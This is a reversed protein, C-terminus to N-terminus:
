PRARCALGSCARLHALREALSERIAAYAPDTHRSRLQYPDRALDYLEQEGNGYEAYFYNPARVATFTGVGPGREILLDRRLSVNPQAIVPLLSRGDMIRGPTAGAADVITPALDINAVRQHVRRGAPIGPGRMILPVRISPEYPLLKGTPVRHEGHFFGNDSTFIILTDDLDRARRLAEVLRAVAEDVALLSELRQQYSERIQRIRQPGLLPRNRIGVPKDSVNAENFSPRGRSRSRISPTATGRPRCRREWGRRIAPSGPAATTRPSSPWGSSSRALRPHASGFSGHRRGRM